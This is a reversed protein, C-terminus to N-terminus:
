AERTLLNGLEVRAADRHEVSSATGAQDFRCRPRPAELLGVQNDVLRDHMLRGPMLRHLRARRHGVPLVALEIQVPRRLRHRPRSRGDRLPDSELGFFLILDDDDALVRAASEASLNRARVRHRNGCQERLFRAAPRDQHANRAFFFVVDAARPRADMQAGADPEALVAPDGRHIQAGDRIAPRVRILAVGARERRGRRREVVRFRNSEAADAHQRVRRRTDRLARGPPSCADAMSSGSM